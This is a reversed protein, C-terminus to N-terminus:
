GQYSIRNRLLEEWKVIIKDHHFKKSYKISNFYYKNCIEDSNIIEKIKSILLSSNSTDIHFGCRNEDLEEWPTGKSAIVPTGEILSEIVVNGFNESKSPLIM